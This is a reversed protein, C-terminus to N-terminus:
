LQRTRTHFAVVRRTELYAAPPLVSPSLSSSFLSHHLTKKKKAEVKKGRPQQQLCSIADGICRSDRSAFVVQAEGIQM